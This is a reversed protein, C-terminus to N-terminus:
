GAGWGAGRDVVPAPIPSPGVTKPRSGSDSTFDAVASGGAGSGVAAPGARVAETIVVPVRPLLVSM